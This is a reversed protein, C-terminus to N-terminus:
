NEPMRYDFTKVVASVNRRVKEDKIAAIISNVLRFTSSRDGTSWIDDSNCTHIFYRYYSWTSTDTQKAESYNSIIAKISHIDDETVKYFHGYDVNARDFSDIYFVIVPIPKNHETAGAELLIYDTKKSAAFFYLGLLIVISSKM